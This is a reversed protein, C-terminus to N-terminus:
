MVSEKRSMLGQVDSLTHHTYKTIYFCIKKFKMKFQLKSSPLKWSSSTMHYHLFPFFHELIEVVFFFCKFNGWQFRCEQCQCNGVGGWGSLIRSLALLGCAKCLQLKFVTLSFVKLPGFINRWKNMQNKVKM